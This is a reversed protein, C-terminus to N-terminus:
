FIGFLHWFIGSFGGGGEFSAARLEYSGAGYSFRIAGSASAADWVGGGVELIGGLRM